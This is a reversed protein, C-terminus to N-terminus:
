FFMTYRFSDPSVSSSEATYKQALCACHCMHAFSVFVPKDLCVQRTFSCNEETVTRDCYLGVLLTGLLSECLGSFIEKVGKKM